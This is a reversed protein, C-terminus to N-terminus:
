NRCAGPVTAPHRRRRERQRWARPPERAPLKLPDGDLLRVM